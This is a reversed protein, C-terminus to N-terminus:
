VFFVKKKKLFSFKEHHRRHFNTKMSVRDRSLNKVETVQKGKDTKPKTKCILPYASVLLCKLWCYIEVLLLEKDSVVFYTRSQSRHNKSGTIRWRIGVIVKERM